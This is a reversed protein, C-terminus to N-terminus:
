LSFYLSKDANILIERENIRRFAYQLDKLPQYNAPIEPKVFVSNEEEKLNVKLKYFREKTTLFDKEEYGAPLFHWRFYADLARAYLLFLSEISASHVKMLELKDTSFHYQSAATYTFLEVKRSFDQFTEELNPWRNIYAGAVEQANMQNPDFNTLIILRAKDSVGSKLIVGRLKVEQQMSPQSLYIESECAYFDKNLSKIFVPKYESLTKVKRYSSFQWPWMGMIFDYNKNGNIKRLELEEFKNGYIILSELENGSSGIGSLFSLLEKNPTDYGPAMFIVLPKNQYFVRNLVTKLNNLPASFDYPIHPTSWITYFQADCYINASNGFSFKACRAEQFSRLMEHYLEGTLVIDGKIDNLYSLIDLSSYEVGIEKLLFYNILNYTKDLIQEHPLDLKKSLIDNFNFGGGLLYDVSRLMLTGCIEPWSSVEGKPEARLIKEAEKPQVTPEIFPTSAAKEEPGASVVEKPEKPEQEDINLPEPPKQEAVPVSERIPEPKPELLVVPPEVPPQPLIEQPLQPKVSEILLTSQQGPVEQILPKQRRPKKRRRGVPMSLGEGKIVANVSSKSVVVGFKEGILTVFKRCSLSADEKKKFVIFEVIEPKLRYVVGM